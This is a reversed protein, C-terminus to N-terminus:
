TLAVYDIVCTAEDYTLCKYHSTNNLMNICDRLVSAQIKDGGSVNKDYMVAICKAVSAYTSQYMKHPSIKYKFLINIIINTGITSMRNLTASRMLFCFVDNKSNLGQVDFQVCRTERVANAKRTHLIPLIFNHITM